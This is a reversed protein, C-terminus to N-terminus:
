VLEAWFRPDDHRRLRTAITDLFDAQGDLWEEPLAHFIDPLLRAANTMGAMMADRLSDRRRMRDWAPRGAHLPLERAPDYSAAFALNHDIVILAGDELRVFLNPNGGHETLTRDGNAIWHDFVYLWCSLAANQQALIVPTVPQIPEQWASAFVPGDGIAHAVDPDGHHRVLSTPMRGIVFPPIPLGLERGLFGAVVEAILGQRLAQRGKVAYLQGDDLHCLFPQTMGSAIPQVIEVIDLIDLRVTM